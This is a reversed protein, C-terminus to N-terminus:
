ALKKQFDDLKTTIGYRPLVSDWVERDIEWLNDAVRWTALEIPRRTSADASPPKTWIVSKGKGTGTVSTISLHTNPFAKLIQAKWCGHFRGVASIHPRKWDPAEVKVRVHPPRQEMDKFLVEPAPRNKANQAESRSAVPTLIDDWLHKIAWVQDSETGAIFKIRFWSFLPVNGNLRMTGLDDVKASDAADLTEKLNIIFRTVDTDRLAQESRKLSNERDVVWGSLEIYTPFFESKRGSGNGTSLRTSESNAGFQTASKRMDDLQQQFKDMRAESADARTSLHQIDDSMEEMKNMNFDTSKHMLIGVPKFWDPMEKSQCAKDVNQMVEKLDEKQANEKEASASDARRKTRRAAPEEVGEMAELVGVYPFGWRECYERDEQAQRRKSARVVSSDEHLHDLNQSVLSADAPKDEFIDCDQLEFTKALFYERLVHFNYAITILM